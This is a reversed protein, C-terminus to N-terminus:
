EQRAARERTIQRCVNTGTVTLQLAGGRWELWDLAVYGEIYGEPIASAECRRLQEVTPLLAEILAERPLAPSPRQSTM